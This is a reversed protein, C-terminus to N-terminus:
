VVSKRDEGQAKTFLDIFFSGILDCSQKGLMEAISETLYLLRGQADTSWFWGQRTEEYNQLLLLAEKTKRNPSAASSQAAIRSSLKNFFGRSIEPSGAIGEGIQPILSDTGM